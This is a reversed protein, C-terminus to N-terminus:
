QLGPGPRPPQCRRAAVCRAYMAQTVETRDILFTSLTVKEAPREDDAGRTSGRVFVGAPIRVRDPAGGPRAAAVRVASPPGVLAAPPRAGFAGVAAALLLALADAM